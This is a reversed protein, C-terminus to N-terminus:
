LNKNFINVFLAPLFPLSVGLEKSTVELTGTGTFGDVDIILRPSCSLHQWYKPLHQLRGNAQPTNM